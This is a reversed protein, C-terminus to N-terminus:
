ICCLHLFWVWICFIKELFTQRSSVTKHISYRSTDFNNHFNFDLTHFESYWHICCPSVWFVLPHIMIFSQIGTSVASHFESYWHVYCPSFSFALPYLLTFRQIGTSEAPHFESYWYIFCPSVRFVLPYLLTFGQICPTVFIDSSMVILTQIGSFVCFTFNLIGSPV